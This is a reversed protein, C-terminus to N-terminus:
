TCRCTMEVLGLGVKDPCTDAQFDRTLQFVEIPPAPTVSDFLSMQFTQSHSASIETISRPESGNWM